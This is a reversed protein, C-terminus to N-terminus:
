ENSFDLRDYDFQKFDEEYVRNILQGSKADLLEKWHPYKRANIKPLSIHTTIFPLNNFDEELNELKLIREITPNITLYKSQTYGGKIEWLTLFDFLSESLNHQQLEKKHGYRDGGTKCISWWWSVMRAYPNRVVIFSYYDEHGPPIKWTTNGLNRGGFQNHLHRVVSSSGAKTVSIYVFKPNDSIFM